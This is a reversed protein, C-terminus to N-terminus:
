DIELIRKINKVVKENFEQANFNPILMEKNKLYYIVHDHINNPSCIIGNNLDSKNIVYFIEKAGENYASVFYKQMALSEIITQGFSESKSATICVASHRLYKFPNSQFGLFFVDKDLNLNKTLSILNDKESGDGVIYLKADNIVDKILKFERILVDVSKIKELRGIYILNNNGSMNIDIDNSENEIKKFPILNNVVEIKDKYKPFIDLFGEKASESVSVILDFYSFKHNLFKNRIKILPKYNSIEYLSKFNCHVWIIKKKAKTFAAYMDSYNNIGYYAIAVDYLTDNIAYKKLLSKCKINKLVRNVLSNKSRKIPIINVDTIAEFQESLDGKNLVYLDILVDEKKLEEILSLLSTEVGGSVLSETTILIRKKM